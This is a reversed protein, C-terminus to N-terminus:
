VRAPMGLQVDAMYPSPMSKLEGVAVFAVGRNNVHAQPDEQIFLHGADSVSVIAQRHSVSQYRQALAVDHHLLATDWGIGPLWGSRGILEHQGPSLGLIGDGVQPLSSTTSQLNGGLQQLQELGMLYFKDAIHHRGRSDPTVFCFISVANMRERIIREQELMVRSADPFAKIEEREQPKLGRFSDNRFPLRVVTQLPGTEFGFQEAAVEASLLPKYSSVDLRRQTLSYYAAAKYRPTTIEATGPLMQEHKKRMAQLRDTGTNRVSLVKAYVVQFTL